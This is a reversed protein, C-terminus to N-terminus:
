STGTQYSCAASLLLQWEFRRLRRLAASLRVKRGKNAADQSRSLYLVHKRQAMPAPEPLRMLERLREHFFPHIMPCRCSFVLEKVSLKFSGTLHELQLLTTPLATNRCGSTRSRRSTPPSCHCCRRM